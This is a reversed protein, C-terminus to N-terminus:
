EQCRLAAIKDVLVNTKSDITRLTRDSDRLIVLEDAKAGNVTESAKALIAKEEELLTEMKSHHHALRDNWRDSLTQLVATGGVRFANVKAQIADEEEGFRFM